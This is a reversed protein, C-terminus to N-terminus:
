TAGYITGSNSVSYLQTSSIAAGGTGGLGGYGNGGKAGWGGGGGAVGNGGANGGSGGGSSGGTGPLIRGGGGGASEFTSGGGGAGGGRGYTSRGQHSGGNSGYAGIGGGAGGLNFYQYVDTTYGGGKGGGAGGGGGESGQNIDNSGGGGGGGGAIYAGSNNQVTVGTVDIYLARGGAGGARNWGGGQGGQGIIYGNNIVTSNAVNVYLGQGSTSTSYLYVGSNITAMISSSGDWGAATALTSLNANAVSSTINFAFVNSKGRLHGIGIAGSAPVGDAVGYYENLSIPYSGGFENQIDLLSATGTPVAM